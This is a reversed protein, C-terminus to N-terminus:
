SGLWASFLSAALPGAAQAARAVLAPWAIGLTGSAATGGRMAFYSCPVAYMLILLLTLCAGFAVVLPAGVKIGGFDKAAGSVDLFHFLAVMQLVGATLWLAELRLCRQLEAICEEPQWFALGGVGHRGHGAEARRHLDQLAFRQLLSVLLAAGSTVNMIQYGLTPVKTQNKGGAGLVLVAVFAATTAIALSLLLRSWTHVRAEVLLPVSAIVRFVAIVVLVVSAAGWLAYGEVEPGSRGLVDIPLAGYTRLAHEWYLLACGVGVGVLLLMASAGSLRRLAAVDETEFPGTHTM